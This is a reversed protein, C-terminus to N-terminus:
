DHRLNRRGSGASRLLRSLWHGSSPSISGSSFILWCQKIKIAYLFSKKKWPLFGCLIIPSPIRSWTLSCHSLLVGHHHHDGTQSLVGCVIGRWLGSHTHGGGSGMWGTTGHAQESGMCSSVLVRLSWLVDTVGHQCSSQAWFCVRGVRGRGKPGM